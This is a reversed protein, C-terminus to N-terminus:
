KIAEEIQSKPKNDVKVDIDLSDTYINTIFAYLCVTLAVGLVIVLAIMIQRFTKQKEINEERELKMVELTESLLGVAEHYNLLVKEEKM